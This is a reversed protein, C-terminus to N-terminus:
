VKQLRALKAFLLKEGVKAFNVRVQYDTNVWKVETVTGLGFIRHRVADGVKFVQDSPATDQVRFGETRHGAFQAKASAKEMERAKQAYKDAFSMTHGAQYRQPQDPRAYAPASSRQAYGRSM